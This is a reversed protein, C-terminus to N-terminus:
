IINLLNDSKRMNQYIFYQFSVVAMWGIGTAYAVAGLGLGQVLLYSLVVRISIHLITGLVPVNVKGCGRFMGVFTSGIFCLTYFFSITKLYSVGNAKEVSGSNGLMFAISTDSTVYMVLSLTLGLLIMLILGIRFGQMARKKNGCGINQAVFVSISVAGSDGFSNAFGEIRTAATYASIMATGMSNVAGQVLLKGIYLSSQHLASIIGYNLTRRLLVGDYRMDSKKFVLLPLKKQLYIFCLTASLMQSAVTAWAAGPVGLRFVAVFLLNLGLNSLMAVILITLAASTNGIARLAASCLNYLFTALLGCFVIYLYKCAYVAVEDPTSIGKLLLRLFLIALISLAVAFAGGFAASLFGERRFGEYDGSGYLQAFIVSIGACCGSLIFTFLNMVTGAVGVAAFATQGVYRGIVIADVTNYLQQLINGILLPFTLSILQKRIDGETLAMAHSM